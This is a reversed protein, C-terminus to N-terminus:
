DAWVEVQVQYQDADAWADAETVQPVGFDLTDGEGSLWRFPTDDWWGSGWVERMDEVRYGKSKLEAIREASTM